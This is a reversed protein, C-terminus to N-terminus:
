WFFEWYLLVLNLVCVKNTGHVHKELLFCDLGQELSM